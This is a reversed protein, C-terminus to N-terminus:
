CGFCAWTLAEKFM